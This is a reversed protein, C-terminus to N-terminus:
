KEREKVIIHDGIAFFNGSIHGIPKIDTNLVDNKIADQHAHINVVEGFVMLHDGVELTKKVICEISVYAEKIRPSKIKKSKEETLGTEKIESINRPYKIEAQIAADLLNETVINVVFDGIEEINKQTDKGYGVGFALIPPDFSVPTIFSFPATNSIGNKDITSILVVPRPAILKYYDSKDVKM